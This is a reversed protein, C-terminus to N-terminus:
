LQNTSFIAVYNIHIFFTISGASDLLFEKVYNWWFYTLQLWNEEFFCIDIWASFIAYSYLICFFFFDCWPESPARVRSRRRTFCVHYGSGKNRYQWFYNELIQKLVQYHNYNSLILIHSFRKKTLTYISYLFRQCVKASM